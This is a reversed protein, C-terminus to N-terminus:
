GPFCSQSPNWLSLIRVIRLAWLLGAAPLLSDVARPASTALRVALLLAAASLATFMQSQFGWGPQWRPDEVAARLREHSFAILVDFCDALFWGALGAALLVLVARAGPRGSLASGWWTPFNM